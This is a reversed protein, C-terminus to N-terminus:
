LLQFVQQLHECHDAMTRSYILIDDIFVLVFKRLFPAFVSNMAAQFTAPVSTLGFPMVRFEFHGHHTRFATKEEDEAAMRIQHYGSRLDLKTFVAAGSLEDLLEEVVPMPFKDQVTVANLQRYDVCFRWTGDKKRVLLVPSAFPSTSLKILGQQLM